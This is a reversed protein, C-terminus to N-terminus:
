DWNGTDTRPGPKPHSGTPEKSPIAISHSVALAECLADRLLKEARLHVSHVDLGLLKQEAMLATKLAALCASERVPPPTDPM